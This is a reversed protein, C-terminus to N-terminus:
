DKLIEAEFVFIDATKWGDWGLGAKDRSCRGLFETLNWGTKTAVQPLFTGSFMGKKIYIGHKGLEIEDTSNIKKLPSLVSIELKMKNLEEKKVPDFRRDTAASVAMQQVLELLPKGQAFGGICGRLKKNIYISVFAGAEKGLIGKPKGTLLNKRKGTELYNAISERATELLIKKEESSIYFSDENNFVALAGYGVVREKDGYRKSDGSNQYDIKIISMDQKETLYLLTIVSTWGCLSTALNKIGKSDNVNLMELLASVNNKTIAKLTNEDIKKAESYDPYHSLDTSVVFLNEDTFYPKLSEAIKQCNKAENTGIIVPVIKFFNKLKYQLFPLQVELSHENEHVEPKDKFLASNQILQKATKVDTEIQGLPTSYNGRTYVSAGNFHYRHSSALVFIRKYNATKPIQNYASAAV